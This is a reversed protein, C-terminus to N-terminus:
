KMHKLIFDTAKYLNGSDIDSVSAYHNRIPKGTSDYHGIHYALAITEDYMSNRNGTIYYSGSEDFTVINKGYIRSAAMITEHGGWVGNKSLTNQVYNKCETNMDIIEDKTKIDYVRDKLTFLFADFNEPLLIHAVVDARLQKTAAEHEKSDTPYHYIQHVISAFMCNGDGPIKTVTLVAEEDNGHYFRMQEQEDNNLLAAQVMQTMHQAFQRYFSANENSPNSNSNTDVQQEEDDEIILVDSDNNTSKDKEVIAVPQKFEKLRMPHGRVSPLNHFDNLHKRFNSMIWGSKENYYVRHILKKKTKKDRCIVCTVNGYIQGNEISVQIITEDLCDIDVLHNAGHSDLCWQVRNFLREKLGPLSSVSLEVNPEFDVGEAIPENEKNINKLATNSYLTARQRKKKKIKVKFKHLGSNIEGDKDVINKVHGCLEYILLKDGDRFCFNDPDSKYQEGFIDTLLEDNYDTLIECHNPDYSTGFLKKKAIELAHERVFQQIGNLREENINKM